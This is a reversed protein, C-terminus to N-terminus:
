PVITKTLHLDVQSIIETGCSNTAWNKLVRRVASDDATTITVAAAAAEATIIPKVKLPRWFNSAGFRCLPALLYRVTFTLLLIHDKILKM